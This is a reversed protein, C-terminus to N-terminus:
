FMDRNVLRLEVRHAANMQLLFITTRGTATTGIIRGAEFRFNEAWRQRRPHFLEVVEGSDPDISTLNPGKIFNCHHCSFALNGADDNGGHQRATIHEVHYSFFPEWDNAMHCYECRGEANARIRHREISSIAM